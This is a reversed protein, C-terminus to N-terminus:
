SRRSNLWWTTMPGKGKVDIEGRPTLDFAGKLREAVHPTVQIRGAEGLSEMRSALNVTDGWIDYITRREGIVGAVVPGANIGIRMRIQHREGAKSRAVAAALDLAFCAMRELHDPSHEPVGGVVMYADGITKVKELEYRAVIGDLESFVDNLLGVLADATMRSSMETFGVIDAMLLSADEFRDAIVREGSRLRNAIPPPLINLLLRETEEKARAVQRAATVDTGYLNFFGFEPIEVPRLEFVLDGAVCEVPARRGAALSAQLQEYLEAPLAQGVTLGLAAVIPQSAENAYILTGAGDMRLVPNPNQGPFKAVVKEATVDTGYVNIFGFEPIRVPRLAYTRFDAELELLDRTPSDAAALVKVAIEMPWADGVKLGFAGIIAQSAANAYILKGTDDVRFVPNPNQNPFREVVKEATIDTGYLNMFGLEPVPIPLIAFTRVGDRVEISGGADAAARLRALLDPDLARGLAANMARLVPASSTNAYTLEGDDHVRLVPHPNQDPFRNIAQIQREALGHEALGHEVLGDEHEPHGESM